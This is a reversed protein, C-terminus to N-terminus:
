KGGFLYHWAAIASTVLGIGGGGGILLNRTADKGQRKNFDAELAALRTRDARDEEIHADLKNILNTLTPPLIALREKVEGLEKHIVRRSEEASVITRQNANHYDVQQQSLGGLQGKLEGIAQFVKQMPDDPM